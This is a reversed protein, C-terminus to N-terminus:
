DLSVFHTASLLDHLSKKDKRFLPLFIGVITLFGLLQTYYRLVIAGLTPREGAKNVLLINYAKAGPTQQKKWLFLTVIIFHPVIIYAWGMAQHQAFAERGGMVMYFVVYLIPMLLMFLDTILAKIRDVISAIAPHQPQNPQPKQTPTSGKKVTRFRKHAM